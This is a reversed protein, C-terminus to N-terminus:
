SAPSCEKWKGGEIPTLVDGGAQHYGNAVISRSLEAIECHTMAPVLAELGSQGHVEKPSDATPKFQVGGLHDARQVM